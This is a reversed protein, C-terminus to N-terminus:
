ATPKAWKKLKIRWFARRAITALDIPWSVPSRSVRQLAKAARWAKDCLLTVKNVRYNVTASPKTHSYFYTCDRVAAVLAEAHDDTLSETAAALAVAVHKAGTAKLHKVGHSVAVKFAKATLGSAVTLVLRVAKLGAPRHLYLSRGSKFELDGQVLVDKLLSALELGLLKGLSAANAEVPVILMLADCTINALANLESIQHRFDM